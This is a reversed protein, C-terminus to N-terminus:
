ESPLKKFSEITKEHFVLHKGFSAYGGADVIQEASRAVGHFGHFIFPKDFGVKKILQLVDSLAKVCHIIVPCGLQKARILQTEFITKQLDFDSKCVRDLGIEGVAKFGQISSVKDLDDLVINVNSKDCNCPHLGATFLGEPVINETLDFSFLSIINEHRIQRHTHVDYFPFM